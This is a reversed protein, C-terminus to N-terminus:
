FTIRFGARVEWLSREEQVDNIDGGSFNEFVYRGQEDITSDVAQVSFFQPATQVGWDSNLM